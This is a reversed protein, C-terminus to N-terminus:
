QSRSRDVRDLDDSPEDIMQKTEPIAPLIVPGWPREDEIKIDQVKMSPLLKDLVIRACAMADAHQDDTGLTAAVKVVQKIVGEAKPNSRFKDVLTKDAPPRGHPNGSKGKQWTM